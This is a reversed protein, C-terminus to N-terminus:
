YSEKRGEWPSTFVNGSIVWAGTGPITGKLWTVLWCVCVRVGTVTCAAGCTVVRCNQTPNTPPPVNALSGLFYHKQNRCLPPSGQCRCQAALHPCWFKYLSLTALLGKSPNQLTWSLSDLKHQITANPPMSHLMATRFDPISVTNYPVSTRSHAEMHQSFFTWRVLDHLFRICQEM